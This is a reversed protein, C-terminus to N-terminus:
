RLLMEWILGQYQEPIRDFVVECEVFTAFSVTSSLHLYMCEPPDAIKVVDVSASKGYVAKLIMYGPFSNEGEIILNAYAVRPRVNPQDTSGM